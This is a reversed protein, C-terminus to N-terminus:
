HLAPFTCIDWIAHMVRKGKREAELIFMEVVVVLVVVGPSCSLAHKMHSGVGTLISRIIGYASIIGIEM